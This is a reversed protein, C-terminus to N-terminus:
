SSLSKLERKNEYMLIDAKNFVDLVARDFEPEYDAMGVAVVVDDTKVNKKNIDNFKEFLYERKYFDSGELILVFEDGGVRYLVSNKFVSSINNKAKILLKDGADHGFNDNIYKLGNVDFVVIAFEMAEKAKIRENILQELENYSHKNSCGTLADTRALIKEHEIKKLYAQEKKKSDDINSVAIIIHNNDSSLRVATFSVYTPKNEIIQRYSLQLIKKESLEQLLNSKELTSLFRNQDEKVLVRKANYISTNFFDKGIEREVLEQSEVNLGYEVYDDTQTDVYYIAFYNQILALAINNYTVVEKIINKYEMERRTMDDINSVGIIVNNDAGIKLVNLCVYTYVKNLLLRYTITLNKGDKINKLLNSKTLTKLIKPADDPHIVRPVNKVVDEFFDDGKEEMKLMKYGVNSSYGVYYDTDLNVYYLTFYNKLIAKSISKYIESETENSNEGSILNFGLSRVIDAITDIASLLEPNKLKELIETKNQKKATENLLEIIYDNNTM